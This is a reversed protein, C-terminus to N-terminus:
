PVPVWCFVTKQGSVTWGEHHMPPHQNRCEKSWEKEDYASERHYRSKGHQTSRSRALRSAESPTTSFAPSCTKALEPVQWHFHCIVIFHSCPNCQAFVLTVAFCAGPPHPTSLPSPTPSWTPFRHSFTYFSYKQITINHCMTLDQAFACWPIGCPLHHTHGLLPSKIPFRPFM